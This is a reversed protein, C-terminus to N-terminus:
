PLRRMILRPQALLFNPEPHQRLRCLHHTPRVSAYFHSLSNPMQQFEKSFRAIQSDTTPVLFCFLGSAVQKQLEFVKQWHPFNRNLIALGRRIIPDGFFGFGVGLGALKSFVYLPTCATLLCAPVLLAALCLCPTLRSFPLTPSLASSNNACSRIGLLM